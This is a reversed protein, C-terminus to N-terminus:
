RNRYIVSLYWLNQRSDGASFLDGNREYRSYQLASSWHRSWTKDISLGAHRDETRRDLDPFTSRSVDAFALLNWTPALRYSTQLLVGRRTEDLALADLYRIREYYPGLSFGLREGEYAYALEARDEEYISANVTSSTGILGEPVETTLGIGEIADTATDSLQHALTLTLSNRDGTRWHVNGRVMPYNSSRGDRFDAQSYGLDVGFGLRALEKQYRMYADYRRYDTAVLEHEFDVDQARVSFTLSSTPDLNRIAHLAASVRQSELEDTEQASSDIWRLEFRGRFAQSFNFHVNPGLSLVNVRQRNDPVDAAFRDIPRMELSDEVTFSFTEPVIFWNLRGALSTEFANSQPGEFYNWYEFRGGFNAQVTSTDESVMFGLGARAATSTAPDDATMLVNDNREVGAAVTYDIRVAQAQLPALGLVALYIAPLGKSTRKM